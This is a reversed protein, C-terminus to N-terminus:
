LAGSPKSLAERVGRALPALVPHGEKEVQELHHELGLPLASGNRALERLTFLYLPRSGEYAPNTLREVIARVSGDPHNQYYSLILPIAQNREQELFALAENWDLLPSHALFFIMSLRAHLNSEHTWRRNVEERMRDDAVQRGINVALRRLSALQNGLLPFLWPMDSIQVLKRFEDVFPVSGLVWAAEDSPLDGRRLHQMAEHCFQQVAASDMPDPPEHGHQTM